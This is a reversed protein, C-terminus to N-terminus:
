PLVDMRQALERLEDSSRGGAREVLDRVVDRAVRHERLYEPALREADDLARLAEVSRRRQAHARAVDILFRAEREASLHSVDVHSAAELAEGADGLEIAVAVRHVGVNAPGFETHFDNRDHGVKDAAEAALRLHEYAAQRENDRAAVVALSLHLAGWLSLLPAPGSESEPALMELTRDAVLRAQAVRGTRLFSLVLRHAGSVVLLSSRAREGATMARDAAVWCADADGLVSLVASAAQYASALAEFWRAADKGSARRAGEELRPLLESLRRCADESQSAHTMEWVADVQAKLSVLDDAPEDSRASFVAAGAPPGSLVARVDDVFGVSVTPLREDEPAEGTRLEAVPVGLEEAMRELVSLRDVSRVGREVQSVWSESRGLRAAFEVQSLGRRRRLFAVREGLSFEAVAILGLRL